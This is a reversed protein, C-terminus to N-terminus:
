GPNAPAIPRSTARSGAAAATQSAERLRALFDDPGEFGVLRLDPRERGSADLFIVTPVGLIKFKEALQRVEPAEGHTMDAKFLAYRSLQERVRPDSFTIDELEHCPICWDAAFDVMAPRGIRAIESANYPMFALRVEAAPKPRPALVYAFALLLLGAGIQVARILRAVGSGGSTALIYAGGALLVAPLLWAGGPDPVVSKLFYAAMALLVVGFIKKVEVMWMGARPLRAIGGSFAALFLYPLGLGLSMVFFLVFGLAADQSAAVFTLLALIVPGICPAAVVGVMAGMALAGGAGAQAGGRKMLFQPPRIEYLGFMSLALLVLVLAVAGLVWPSQLASGFLKGSLAAAVGLLSYTLCLGLVYLVALRVPRRGEAAQGGFFGVTIPIVPYVCPTLNLALGLLFILPLALAWRRQSLLAAVKGSLDGSSGPPPASSTAAAAPGSASAAPGAEVTVAVSFPVSAPALCQADNCPQYDVTGSLPYSAPRVAPSVKAPASIDFRGEYVSLPKDSFAFKREGGPPYSVEGITIGDTGKLKLETPILYDESPHHSNVHWGSALEAHVVIRFSSGAPVSAPVAEARLHLLSASSVAAPQGAEAFTTLLLVFLLLLLKKM